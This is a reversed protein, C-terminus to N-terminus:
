LLVVLANPSKRPVTSAIDTLLTLTSACAQALKVLGSYTQVYDNRCLQKTERVNLNVAETLYNNKKLNKSLVLYFYSFSKSQFENGGQYMKQQSFAM